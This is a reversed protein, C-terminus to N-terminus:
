TLGIEIQELIQETDDGAQSVAELIAIGLGRAEDITFCMDGVIVLENEADLYVGIRDGTELWNM